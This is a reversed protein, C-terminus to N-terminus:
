AGASTGPGAEVLLHVFDGVIGTAVAAGIPALVAVVPLRTPDSGTVMVPGFISVLAAALWVIATGVSVGMLVSETASRRVLANMVSRTAAAGPIWAIIAVIPLHEHESGSVMDPSFISIAAVGIWIAAVALVAWLARTNM